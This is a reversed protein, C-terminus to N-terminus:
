MHIHGLPTVLLSGGGGSGGLQTLNGLDPPFTDGLSKGSYMHVQITVSVTIHITRLLIYHAKIIPIIYDTCIIYLKYTYSYMCVYM